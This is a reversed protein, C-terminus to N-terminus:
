HRFPTAQLQYKQLMDRGIAVEFRTTATALDYRAAIRGLQAEAIQEEQQLLRFSESLGLGLRQLEMGYQQQSLAVASDALTLVRSGTEIARRSERVDKRVQNELGTITVEQQAVVATRQAAVARANSNPVPIRASLSMTWGSTEIDGLRTPTFRLSSTNNVVTSYAATLDLTPLLTNRSLGQLIRYNELSLRAATLDNRAVLAMSESQGPSPLDAISPPEDVTRVVRDRYQDRAQDGYVFFILSDTADERGQVAQVLVKRRQAVGLQATILDNATIKDLERLEANRRLLTDARQLSADAAAEEQQRRALLWYLLEVNAITLEAFRRFQAETSRLSATAAGVQAHGSAAGFGRLLPQTLAFTLVNDYENLSTQTTIPNQRHLASELSVSYQTSWPSIGAVGSELTRGALRQSLRGDATLSSVASSAADSRVEVVPDFVGRADLVDARAVAVDYERARLTLERRLATAALDALRVFVTETPPSSGVARQTTLAPMTALM